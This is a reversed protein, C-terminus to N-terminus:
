PENDIWVSGSYTGLDYTIRAHHWRGLFRESGQIEGLAHNFLLNETGRVGDPAFAVEAVQFTQTKSDPLGARFVFHPRDQLDKGEALVRFNFEYSVIVPTTPTGDADSIRVLCSGSIEDPVRWPYTGVNAFREVITHFTTGNDTSYEIKVDKVREGGSWTIPRLSGAELKEGGNPALLALEDGDIIELPGNLATGALTITYPDENLDNSGITVTATRLREGGGQSPAFRVTFSNSKNVEIESSGSYGELFFDNFQGGPQEIEIPWGYLVLTATGYNKIDLMESKSQGITVNGFDFTGGNPVRVIEIEPECFGRLHIEYPNKNADDSAISLKATKDGISPPLFRITFTTSQGPPVISAPAQTVTFMDKDTGDITLAGINLSGLGTNLITFTKYAPTQLSATIDANSQPAYDRVSISPLPPFSVIRRGQSDYRYDAVCQGAADRIVRLRNEADWEYAKGLEGTLLNGRADYQHGVIRNSADYTKSFAINGNHRVTLMNGFADYEYSYATPVGPNATSYSASILRNLSDYGFTSNMAPTPATSSISTINGAGDYGYTANYLPTSGKKLSVTSPMGNAYFSSSLTLSTENQYAIAALMKNPGYSASQVLYPPEDGQGFRLTEPRGLGNFVLISKKGDPYITETLYGKGDYAYALSKSGLGPITVTEETIHGFDDYKIGTRSWGTSGTVSEVAGKDNYDYIVTEAGTYRALQGSMNYTFYIQTGGWTKSSLLNEPNYAYSIIGTEPHTESKVRDLPDFVYSQIRAGYVVNILRGLADYTYDAIHGQADTLRTPLGPLDDYTYITTHNEPDTIKKTRNPLYQAKTTKGVQDTVQTVRGAADHVYTYKHTASVSGNTETKVRGEADLEKLYYLTTGDGNEISGLDRGFGDWIRTITNGDDTIVVKNQGNPRWAYNVTRFPSPPPQPKEQAHRWEIKTVRGLEDYTYSKSGGYQNREGLVYGYKRIDRTYRLYGPAKVEQELGYYYFVESLGVGGPGDVGISYREPSTSTYTYDWTLYATGSMWRKIQKLAGWKDEEEYYSTITERLRSGSPTTDKENEVFDMMYRGLFGSHAEFFYTLEKASKASPAGNLIYRLKTPLGYKKVNTRLYDFYIAITSDGTRSGTAVSVLPGKATGMNVGLVSWTTTSIEHYTWFATASASGDGTAGATQLGIRWRNASVSEFGYHTSSASYEPGTVTTTGTSAGQYSPYAYNWVGAQEGANFTIRKQSVSKSDLQTAGFYFIHNEYSYELVGGFSTTLRTLEYNNSLGNNYEYTAPPLGPPVFSTLKYFGNPFSGVSYSYIVDSTDDANRTRIEALKAPSSGQYSKIFRVERGLSDTIKSISRLSDAADYEIDIFNGLPDEIRTVMYVTETSGNALPLSAINGFTWVVGNQFYLKPAFGFRCYYKLFDRTIRYSSGWGYESEKPPFATERRGDPFMIEPTSSYANRVMGMHMTWGIGLMSKPYAQVTPNPQSVPRDYLIKSNYVRWVEINLGNPGPIFIDRYRLTLNGTFLDVTEEPLSSYTGHGPIIGTRDFIGTQARASVASFVFLATTLLFMILKRSM